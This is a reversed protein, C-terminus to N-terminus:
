QLSAGPSARATPQDKAPSHWLRLLLASGLAAAVAPLAVVLFTMHVPMSVLVIGALAGTISGIKQLSSASGVGLSRVSSPYFAGACSILGVYSGIATVGIGFLAICTLALSDTFNGLMVICPVAMALSLMVPRTGLRDILQGIALPGVVAGMQFAGTAFAALRPTYGAATLIMPTWSQVFYVVMGIAIVVVWLVPTLAALRGAFLDAVKLPRDHQEGSLYFRMDPTFQLDPRMKRLLRCLEEKRDSKQALYKPSEPGFLWILLAAILPAVGGILFLPEWGWHPGIIGATVAALVGGLSVGTAGAATLTARLHKPAFEVSMVFALPMVGGIGVGSLFRLVILEMPSTAWVAALMAVGVLIAGAVIGPRRGFRSGVYGFIPGGILIGAVSAGLLLGISEKALGLDKAIFPAAFGVIGSDYGEILLIAFIWAAIAANFRSFRQSDIALTVDASGADEITM